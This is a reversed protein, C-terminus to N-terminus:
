TKKVKYRQGCRRYTERHDVKGVRRAERGALWLGGGGGGGLGM